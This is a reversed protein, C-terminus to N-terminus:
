NKKFLLFLIIFILIIIIIYLIFIFILYPQISSFIDSLFPYIILNNIKEKNDKKNLENIIKNILDRTLNQIIM